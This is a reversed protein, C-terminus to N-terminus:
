FQGPLVGIVVSNKDYSTLVKDFVVNRSALINTIEHNKDLGITAHM